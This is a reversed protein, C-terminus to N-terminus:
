HRPASVALSCSPPRHSVEQVRRMVHRRHHIDHLRILHLRCLLIDHHAPRPLQVGSTRCGPSRTGKGQIIDPFTGDYHPLRFQLNIERAIHLVSAADHRVPQLQNQLSFPACSGRQDLRRRSPSWSLCGSRGLQLKATVHASTVLSDNYLDQTCGMMSAAAAESHRGLVARRLPWRSRELM